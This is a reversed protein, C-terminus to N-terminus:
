QKIELDSESFAWVLIKALTDGDPNEGNEFRGLTAPSTGIEKALARIGLRQKERWARIIRGLVM